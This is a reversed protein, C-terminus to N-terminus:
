CFVALHFGRDSAAGASDHTILFVGNESANEGVVTIEGPASAGAADSLGITATYACNRVNQNFRVAYVGTGGRTATPAGSGRALTGNANVVAFLKTAPAGAPGAPGAPGVSGREGAPGAPGAPGQRGKLAAVTKTSLDVTKITGNKIDTTNM